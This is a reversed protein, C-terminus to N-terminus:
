CLFMSQHFYIYFRVSHLITHQKKIHTKSDPQVINEINSEHLM